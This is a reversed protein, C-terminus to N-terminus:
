LALRSDNSRVTIMFPRVLRFCVRFYDGQEASMLGTGAAILM